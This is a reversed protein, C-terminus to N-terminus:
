HKIIFAIRDANIGSTRITSKHLAYFIIFKEILQSPLCVVPLQRTLKIANSLLRTFFQRIFSNYVLLHSRMQAKSTINVIPRKFFIYNLNGM